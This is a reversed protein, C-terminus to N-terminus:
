SGFIKLKKITKSILREDIYHRRLVESSSHSSLLKTEGKITANLYTLYTKRLHKFKIERGTNLQKYFHTFGKSLNDKITSATTIREPHLIYKDAGIKEELGLKYLLKLLENTIPIIKPQVNANFGEGKQREVKFNRIEIFHPKENKFHIMNWKMKVIEEGRCGTQLALKIGNKLYPRYRQKYYSEKANNILQKGLEPKITKLLAKYEEQYIIDKRIVGQRRKVKNFPNNLPLNFRQISWNVYGRLYDMKNNYTSYSYEMTDLLYSHFVGVHEDRIAILPISSINIKSSEMAKNFLELSYKIENIHKQIRKVKQHDPIKVNSLYLTYEIQADIILINIGKITSEKTNIIQVESKIKKEFDIAELIANNYDVSSLNKSKTKGKKNPLYVRVKYRHDKFFNCLSFVTTTENCIPEEVKTIGKNSKIFKHTWSFNKRCRNCYIFLGKHKQQPLEKRKM